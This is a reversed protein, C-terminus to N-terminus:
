GSSKKRRRSIFYQLGFGIAVWGAIILGLVVMNEPSPNQWVERLRDGLVSIILIGPAMGLATGALFDFLRIHTAGAVLNIATFPAVPLLRLGAVALVGKAAMGKSLRNLKKGMMKRLGNEGLLTGVGFTLAASGLCGAAACVGGLFPGLTMGTLAILITIPFFVISALIIVMPVAVPAWGSDAIKQFYPELTEVDTYDSIPTAYWLLLLLAALSPARLVM